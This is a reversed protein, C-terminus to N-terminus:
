RNREAERSHRNLLRVARDPHPLHFMTLPSFSQAESARQRYRRDSRQTARLVLLAQDSEAVTSQFRREGGEAAPRAGDASTCGSDELVRAHYSVEGRTLPHLDNLIEGVGLARGGGHLARLIDRRTPHNLADQLRPELQAAFDMALRGDEATLEAERM